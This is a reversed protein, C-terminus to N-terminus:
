HAHASGRHYKNNELMTKIKIEKIRGCYAKSIKDKEQLKKIRNLEEIYEKYKLCTAHCGVFRDECKYCKNKPVINIV